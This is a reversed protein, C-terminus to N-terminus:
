RTSCSARRTPRPLVGAPGAPEADSRLPLQGPLLRRSRCRRPRLRGAHVGALRRQLERQHSGADQRAHRGERRGELLRAADGFTATRKVNLKATMVDEREIDERFRVRRFPYAAGSYFNESPTVRVLEPDSVDYSNPFANAASRFEWDVRFPTEREGRSAGVKWDITSRATEHTGVLMAANILHQQNYDRYERTARGQSFQGSTPTQNTLTGRTLDLETQQRGKPTRSGTTISASRWRTSSARAPVRAVRQRGAPPPEPRLSLVGSEAARVLRQLRGLHRRRPVAGIRLPPQSYSAGLVVGWRQAAGFVRGFSVSGTFPARGSMDNYGSRLSGFLFGGPM